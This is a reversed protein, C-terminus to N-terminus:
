RGGGGRTTEPPSLSLPLPPVFILAACTLSVRTSSSSIGSALETLIQVEEM